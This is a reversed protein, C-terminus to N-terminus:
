FEVRNPFLSNQGVVSRLGASPLLANLIDIADQQRNECIAEHLRDVEALFENEIEERIKGEDPDDKTILHIIKEGDDTLDGDSDYLADVFQDADLSGAMLAVIEQKIEATQALMSKKTEPKM